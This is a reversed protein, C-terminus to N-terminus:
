RTSLSSSTIDLGSTSVSSSRAICKAVARAFYRFAESTGSSATHRSISVVLISFRGSKLARLAGLKTAWPSTPSNTVRSTASPSSIVRTGASPASM